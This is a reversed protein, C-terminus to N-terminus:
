RREDRLVEEYFAWTERACREWTYAAANRAGDAVLRDRAEPSLQRLRDLGDGISATDLPDIFLAAGGSTGRLVPVDSTLVPTRCAHAELVPFGFGEDISPYLLAGAHTVAAHLEDEGVRPLLSAGPPLAPGSRRFREVEEPRGGVLVLPPKPPALRGYAELLRARNKRPSLDGAMLWAGREMWHPPASRAPGTWHVGPAVTRVLCPLGRALSRVQAAVPEADCLIGRCRAFRARMEAAGPARGPHFGPDALWALDHVTVVQPARAQVPLPHPIHVLDAEGTFRELPFPLPRNWIWDLLSRPVRRHLTGEIPLPLRRLTLAFPRFDGPHARALACALERAYRWVGTHPFAATTYDYAVKM